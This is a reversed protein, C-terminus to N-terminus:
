RLLFYGGAALLIIGVGKLWHFEVPELGFWGFHDIIAAGSVQALIIGTTAVAAGVLPIAKAVGYIIGVSLVGSLYAYWPVKGLNNFSGEGAKLFILILAFVTGILHVIFSAELLGIVKSFKANIGGQVAMLLGALAAILLALIYKSLWIGGREVKNHEKV